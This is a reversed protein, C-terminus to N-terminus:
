EGLLVGHEAAWAEVQESYDLFEMVPLKATSRQVLVADGDVLLTDKGLFQAKFYEHWTEPAHYESEMQRAMEMAIQQLVAWYRRNQEPSRRRHWVKIEIQYPPKLPLSQIVKCARSRIEETRVIYRVENM